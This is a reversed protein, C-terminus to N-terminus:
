HALQKGLYLAATKLAQVEPVGIRTSREDTAMLISGILDGETVIPIVCAQAVSGDTEAVLPIPHETTDDFFIVQKNRLRECLEASLARNLLRKRMTGSVFLVTETDTVAATHGFAGNLAQVYSLSFEDLEHMKAYKKLVIGGDRDTFIEMPDSEHIRLSRRIEKPIVIRGM